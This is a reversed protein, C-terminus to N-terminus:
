TCRRVARSRRYSPLPRPRAPTTPAAVPASGVADEQGVDWTAGCTLCALQVFPFDRLGGLGMAILYFGIRILALGWLVAFVLPMVGMDAVVGIIAFFIGGGIVLVGGAVLGGGFLRRTTRDQLLLWPVKEGSGREQLKVGGCRPCSLGETRM